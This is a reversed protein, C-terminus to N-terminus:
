FEEAIGWLAHFVLTLTQAFLKDTILLSDNSRAIYVSSDAILLECLFGFKVESLFKLKFKEDNLFNQLRIDIAKHKAIYIAKFKEVSDLIGQIHKKNIYEGFREYNFINYMEVSRLARIESRIAELNEKTHDFFRVMPKEKALNYISELQPMINDLVQRRRVVEREQQESLYRLKEPKEAVYFLKGNREIVNVLGRSILNKIHTYATTRNISARTSIEQVTSYGLQLSSLYVEAEKSPIGLALLEQSLSM